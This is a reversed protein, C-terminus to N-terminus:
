QTPLRFVAQFSGVHPQYVLSTFELAKHFMSQVEKFTM